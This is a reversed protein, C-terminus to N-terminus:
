EALGEKGTDNCPDLDTYGSNGAAAAMHVFPEFEPCDPSLYFCSVNIGQWQQTGPVYNDFIISIQWDTIGFWIVTIAICMDFNTFIWQYKSLNNDLFIFLSTNCASLQLFISM